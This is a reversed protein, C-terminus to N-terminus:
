PEGGGGGGQGSIHTRRVDMAPGNDPVLGRMKVGPTRATIASKARVAVGEKEKKTTQSVSRATNPVFAPPALGWMRRWAELENCQRTHQQVGERKRRTRVANYLVTLGTNTWKAGCASKIDHTSRPCQLHTGWGTRLGLGSAHNAGTIRHTQFKIAGEWTSRCRARPLPAQAHMRARARTHRGVSWFVEPAARCSRLLKREGSKNSQEQKCIEDHTRAHKQTHTHTHTHTHQRSLM